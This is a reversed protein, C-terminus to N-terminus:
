VKHIRLTASELLAAPSARSETPSRIDAAACSASLAAEPEEWFAEAPAHSTPRQDRLRKEKIMQHHRKTDEDQAQALANAALTDATACGAVFRLQWLRKTEEEQAQALTGPALADATACSASEAAPLAAPSAHSETELARYTRWVEM